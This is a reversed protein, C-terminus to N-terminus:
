PQTIIWSETIMEVFWLGGGVLEQMFFYKGTEQHAMHYQSPNSSAIVKARYVQDKRQNMQHKRNM